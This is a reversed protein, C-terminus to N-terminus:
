KRGEAKAIAARAQKRLKALTVSSEHDATSFAAAVLARCVALLEEM